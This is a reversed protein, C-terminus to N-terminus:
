KIKLAITIFGTMIRTGTLLWLYYNGQPIYGLKAALRASGENEADWNPDLGRELSHLLLRAAVVTALGKRQQKERTSIQIEIGKSCFAFTTAASIIVDGELICFGFGRNIFDEPSDFNLMHASAFSSKEIVLKQALKLDIQELQYGNPIQSALKRLHQIDLKASTFAFRQMDIFKGAHIEKLLGEWGESAFILTSFKHLNAMFDRAAPHNIDGGPIFLKLKPIELVAFQPNDENDVFVEGM